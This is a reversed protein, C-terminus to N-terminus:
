LSLLLSYTWSIIKGKYRSINFSNHHVGLHIGLSKPRESFDSHPSKTDRAPCLLLLHSPLKGEQHSFRYNHIFSGQSFWALDSNFHCDFSWIHHIPNITHVNISM